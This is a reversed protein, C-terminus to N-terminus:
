ARRHFECRAIAPEQGRVPGVVGGAPDRDRGTGDRRWALLPAHRRPFPREMRGMWGSLRRGQIRRGGCGLARRDTETRAARPGALDRDAAACVPDFGDARRGLVPALDFRFGHVGGLEAWARLADMALRVVHPRDLALVNGCGADDVYAAPHDSGLRYYSANDLGRMSLTPGNADGEATHNLVIDAITEIGAAALAAVTARVEEWGGPALRPDPTMFAATNYGWYNTLGLAALHREEIWAAAPMIEVSTVGLRVLYEISAPHALGGFTGRLAPPIADRRMTFGRVHLEYLVTKAWPVLMRPSLPSLAPMVIAKPMAPASDDSNLVGDPTAGFMSPHLKFPRDIALAYPDILLKSPNFRHGESPAFVGHGRLGYRSGAPVDGIFGHFIDGTKEPLGVRRIEREGAADFLCFEIASANASFVAVNVGDGALSVGLPEPSGSDLAPRPM